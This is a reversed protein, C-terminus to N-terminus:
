MGMTKFVSAMYLLAFMSFLDMTIVVWFMQCQLGQKFSLQDYTLQSFSQVFEPNRRVLVVAVLALGAWCVALTYLLQPVREAISTDYILNGDAM